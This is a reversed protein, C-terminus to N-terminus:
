KCIEYHTENRFLFCKVKSGAQLLAEDLPHLYIVDTEAFSSLMNSEQKNMPEVMLKDNKRILKARQFFDRGSKNYSDTALEASFTQKFPKLKLSARIFTRTFLEFTIASSVQNGPLAFIPKNKFYAFFFPKGPKMTLGYVLPKIKFKEFLNRFPDKRGKSIGGSTVIIDANEVAELFLRESHEDDDRAIGANIPYGGAESVQNCLMISNANRVQWPKFSDWHMVLEDGSTLVAVVPKKYVKLATLGAGAAIGIIFPSIEVGKKVLIQEKKQESGKKRIFTGIKAPKTFTVKTAHFDEPVDEIKVVSDSGDPLPAGTAIYACKGHPLTEIFHGADIKAAVELKVPSEASANKIDASRVCFGDMASNDTLPLDIDSIIDQALSRGQADELKIIETKVPFKEAENLVTELSQSYKVPKQELKFM